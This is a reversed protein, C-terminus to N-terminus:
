EATQFVIKAPNFYNPLYNKGPRKDESLSQVRFFPMQPDAM